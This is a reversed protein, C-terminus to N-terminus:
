NCKYMCKRSADEKGDFSYLKAGCDSCIMWAEGSELRASRESRPRPRDDRDEPKDTNMAHTM